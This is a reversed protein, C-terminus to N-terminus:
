KNMPNINPNNAMNNYQNNMVYSTNDRQDINAATENGINNNVHEESNTWKYKHVLLIGMLISIGLLFGVLLSCVCLGMGKIGGTDAENLFINKDNKAFSCTVNTINYTMNLSQNIMGLLQDYYGKLENAKTQNGQCTISDRIQQYNGQIQKWENLKENLVTGGEIVNTINGDGNACTDIIDSVYEDSSEFVIPDNSNLNESSIIYQGVQVADNFVYGIIGFLVGLLISLLMLLMSVNWVVVYLIRFINSKCFFYLSLFALGLAGFVLTLIFVVMIIKIVYKNMHNHLVKYVDNGIDDDADDITKTVDRLDNIADDTTISNFSETILSNVRNSSTLLTQYENSCVENYNGGINNIDTNLQNSQTKITNMQSKTNELKTILGDLGEWEGQRNTYSPALGYRAHDLFYFASCGLGNIRDFFSDLVGLIIISIIIVALLCIAAILYLVFSCCKSPTSSSFLCCSCCCCSCYSIWIFILIIDIVLIAIFIACKKVYPKINSYSSKRIFDVISKQAKSLKETKISEENFDTKYKDTLRSGAKDCMYNKKSAEILSRLNLSNNLSELFSSKKILMLSTTLCIALLFYTINENKSKKM